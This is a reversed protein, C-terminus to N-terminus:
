WFMYKFTCGVALHLIYWKAICHSENVFVGVVKEKFTKSKLLQRIEHSLFKEPSGFVFTYEGNILKEPISAGNVDSLNIGRVGLSSLKSLQDNMLSLLPSVVLVINTTDKGRPSANSNEAQVYEMAYPFLMYVLSKGSGTPQTLFIDRTGCLLVNLYQKQYQKLQLKGTFGLTDLAYLIAVVYEM